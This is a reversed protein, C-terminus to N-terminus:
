MTLLVVIPVEIEVARAILGPRFDKLLAGFCAVQGFIWYKPLKEVCESRRNAETKCIKAASDTM